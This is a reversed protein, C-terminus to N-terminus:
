LNKENEQEGECKNKNNERLKDKNYVLCFYFDVVKKYIKQNIKFM